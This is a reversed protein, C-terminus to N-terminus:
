AKDEDKVIFSRASITHGTSAQLGNLALHLLFYVTSCLAIFPNRTVTKLAGVVNAEQPTATTTPQWAM